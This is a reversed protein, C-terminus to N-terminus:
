ASRWVSKSSDISSHKEGCSVGFEKRKRQFQLSKMEVSRRTAKEFESIGVQRKVHSSLKEVGHPVSKGQAGKTEGHIADGRDRESSTNKKRRNPISEVISVYIKAALSLDFRDHM